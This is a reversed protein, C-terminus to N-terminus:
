PVTIDGKFAGGGTNIYLDDYQHTISAIPTILRLHSFATGGSGKTNVGSINIVETGNVRVVATGLTAHMFVQAEIYAWVNQAVVNNASTGLATGGPNAFILANTTPNVRISDEVNTAPASRFQAIDRTTTIADTRKHAFGITITTSQSGAAIAYQAYVIAGTIQAGNGTRAAVITPTGNLTWPAFTYNNFPEMLVDVGASVVVASAMIGANPM